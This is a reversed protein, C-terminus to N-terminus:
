IQKWQKRMESAISNKITKDKDLYVESINHRNLIDNPIQFCKYMLFLGAAMEETSFRGEDWVQYPTKIWKNKWKGSTSQKSRM